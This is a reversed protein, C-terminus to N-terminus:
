SEIHFQKKWRETNQRREFRQHASLDQSTNTNTQACMRVCGEGTDPNWAHIAPSLHELLVTITKESFPRQSLILHKHTLGLPDDSAVVRVFRNDGEWLSDTLTNLRDLLPDTGTNEWTRVINRSVRVILRILFAGIFIWIIAEATSSIQIMHWLLTMLIGAGTGALAAVALTTKPSPAVLWIKTNCPTTGAFLIPKSPTSLAAWTRSVQALVFLCFFFTITLMPTLVVTHPLAPMAVLSALVGTTAPLAM